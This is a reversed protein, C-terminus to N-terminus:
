IIRQVPFLFTIEEMTVIPVIAIQRQVDEASFEQQTRTQSWGVDIRRCSAYSLQLADHFLNTGYPRLHADHHPSIRSKAALLQHGPAFGFTHVVQQSQRFVFTQLRLDLLLPPLRLSLILLRPACSPQEFLEDILRPLTPATRSPYHGLGFMQLLALVWPKHHRRQTSFFPRCLRQIFFLV